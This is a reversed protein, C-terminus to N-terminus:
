PDLITDVVAVGVVVVAAAAAAAIFSYCETNALHVTIHLSLSSCWQRLGYQILIRRSRIMLLVKM